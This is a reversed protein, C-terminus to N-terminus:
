MKWWIYSTDKAVLLLDFLSVLVGEDFLIVTRGDNTTGPLIFCARFDHFYFLLIISSHLIISTTIQIYLTVNLLYWNLNKKLTPTGATIRPWRERIAWEYFIMLICFLYARINGLAVTMLHLLFCGISFAHIWIYKCSAYTKCIRKHTFPSMQLKKNLTLKNLYPPYCLFIM